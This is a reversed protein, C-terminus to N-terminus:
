PWRVPMRPWRCPVHFIIRCLGHIDLIINKGMFHLDPVVFAVELADDEAKAAVAVFIAIALLLIKKM